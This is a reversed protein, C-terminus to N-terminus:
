SWLPPWSPRPLSLRGWPHLRTLLATPIRRHWHGQKGSNKAPVATACLVRQVRNDVPGKNTPTQTDTTEPQTQEHRDRRERSGGRRPHHRLRARQHTPQGLRQPGGAARVLQDAGDLCQLRQAGLEGRDLGLHEGLDVGALDRLALEAPGRGGVPVGVEGSQAAAVAFAPDVVGALQVGVAPVRAASRSPVTLGSCAATTRSATSASGVLGLRRAPGFVHQQLFGAPEVGGVEGLGSAADEVHDVGVAVSRGEFALQVALFAGGVEVPEEGDGGVAGAADPDLAAAAGLVGGEEAGGQEREGCRDGGGPGALGRGGRGRRGAAPVGQDLTGLVGQGGVQGGLAVAGSGPEGDGGVEVVRRVPAPGAVM